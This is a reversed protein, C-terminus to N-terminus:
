GKRRRDVGQQQRDTRDTRHVETQSVPQSVWWGHRGSQHSGIKACTLSLEQRSSFHTPFWLGFSLRLATLGNVSNWKDRSLVAWM